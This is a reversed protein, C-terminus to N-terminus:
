RSDSVRALPDHMPRPDGHGHALRRLEQITRRRTRRDLGSGRLEARVCAIVEPSKPAHGVGTPEFGQSALMRALERARDASALRVGGVDVMVPGSEPDLVVNSPKADRNFLGLHALHGVHAGARHALVLRTRADADAWAALLTPGDAWPTVLVEHWLGGVDALGLVRVRPTHLGRAALVAAGLAAKGLDTLGFRFRLRERIGALPRVKVAVREGEARALWVERGREDRKVCEGEAWFRRALLEEWLGRGEGVGLQWIRM